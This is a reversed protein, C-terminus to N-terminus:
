GKWPGQQSVTTTDLPVTRGPYRGPRCARTFRRASRRALRMIGGAMLAATGALCTKIFTRRKM